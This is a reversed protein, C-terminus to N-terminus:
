LDVLRGSNEGPPQQISDFFHKGYEILFVNMRACVLLLDSDEGAFPLRLGSCCFWVACLEFQSGLGVLGTVKTGSAGELHSEQFPSDGRHSGPTGWVSLAM